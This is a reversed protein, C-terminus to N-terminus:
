HTKVEDGVADEGGADRATVDMEELEGFARRARAVLQVEEAAVRQLLDDGLVLEGAGDRQGVVGLHRLHVLAREASLEGHEAVHISAVAARERLEADDPGLIVDIRDAIVPEVHDGGDTGGRLALHHHQVHFGRAEALDDRAAAGVHVRHAERRQM